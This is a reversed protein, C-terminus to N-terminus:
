AAKTTGSVRSGTEDSSNSTAKIQNGYYNRGPESGTRQHQWWPHVYPQPVSLMPTTSPTGRIAERLEQMQYSVYKIMGKLEDIETKLTKKKM